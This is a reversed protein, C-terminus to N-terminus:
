TAGGAMTLKYQTGDVLEITITDGIDAGLYSATTRELLIERRKPPFTGKEPTIRNVTMNEYDDYVVLDMNYSAKPTILRVNEWDRMQADVVEPQRLAWRAPGDDSSSAYLTVTSANIAEYQTNMDEVLVDGTIFVSAFAFIGVAIALVVLVTRTKNAWLDRAVKHWRPSVM